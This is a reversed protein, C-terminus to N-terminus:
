DNVESAKALMLNSGIIKRFYKFYLVVQLQNLYNAYGESGGAVPTPEDIPSSRALLRSNFVDGLSISGDSGVSKPALGGM